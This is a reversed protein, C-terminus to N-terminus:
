GSGCMSLTTSMNVVPFTSCMVQCTAKNITCDVAGIKAKGKVNTALEDWEPKLNKCHGCWPAYFEVLWVSEGDLEQHFNTDTLIVVDAIDLRFCSSCIFSVVCEGAIRGLNM